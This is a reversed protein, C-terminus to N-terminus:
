AAMVWRMIRLNLSQTQLRTRLAKGVEDDINRRLLLRLDTETLHSQLYDCSGIFEAIAQDLPNTFPSDVHLIRGEGRVSSLVVSKLLPSIGHNEDLMGLRLLSREQDPEIQQGLCVQRLFYLTDRELDLLDQCSRIERWASAALDLPVQDGNALIVPRNILDENM